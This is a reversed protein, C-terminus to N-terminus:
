RVVLIDGSATQMEAQGDRLVQYSSQWVYLGSQVEKGNLKGAWHFDEHASANFVLAGWRDFIQFSLLEYEYDCSVSLEIEDNIGDDNPSFINPVVIACFCDVLAVSTSYMHQGCENDISVSYNGATAVTLQAKNSGDSWLYIGPLPAYLTIPSDTCGSTDGPFYKPIAGDIVLVTDRLTCGGIFADVTYVGAERVQIVSDTEGTSWAYVADNFGANLYTPMGNCIVLTDPLPDFAEVLVDEIFFYNTHPWINPNEVEIRTETENRFNGIMLYEETGDAIYCGSVRTWNMTDTILTGVNEIAPELDVVAHPIVEATYVSETFALGVADTYIWEKSANLDPVVYFEVYYQIGKTMEDLLPTQIFETLLSSEWFVFLGAYGDGSRPPQYYHYVGLGGQPVTYNDDIACGHYLDPTLWASTWPFALNIQGQGSPCATLIEFGSNPVLNQAYAGPSIVLFLALILGKLYVTLINDTATM